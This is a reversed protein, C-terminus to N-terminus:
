DIRARKRANTHEGNAKAAGFYELKGEPTDKITASGEQWGAPCVEGFQEHFQFAKILRVTEEVSRGVPKDNVTMQRLVGKPDIIYTGRFSVGEEEILCGYDRAIQMSKDAILPIVLPAGAPSDPALGGQARPTQTWQLHVYQSDTSVGLVAANLKAFEPLAANFALIETPCVFTFDMPYFFLVVWQGLYDSLSKELFQGQQVVTATFAPAPKNLQPYGM